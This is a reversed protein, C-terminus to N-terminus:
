WDPRWTDLLERLNDRPVQFVELSDPEDYRIELDGAHLHLQWQQEIREVVDGLTADLTFTEVQVSYVHKTHQWLARWLAREEMTYDNFYLPSPGYCLLLLQFFGFQMFLTSFDTILVVDRWVPPHPSYPTYWSSAGPPHTLGPRPPPDDRFRFREVNM